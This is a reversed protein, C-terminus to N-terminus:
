TPRISADAITRAHSRAPEASWRLGIRSVRQVRTHKQPWVSSSPLWISSWESTPIGNRVPESSCRPGSLSMVLSWLSPRREGTL